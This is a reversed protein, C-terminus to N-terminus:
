QVIEDRIELPYAEGAEEWRRRVLDIVADLRRRALEERDGDIRYTLRLISFEKRLLDVLRDIGEFWRQKLNTSREEFAAGSIDLRVIRGSVVAFNATVSQDETLTIAQPNEGSLRYGGPLSDIEALLEVALGAQAGPIDACFLQYRGFRDTTVVIGGELSLRVGDIGMENGDDMGDRDADEFVRGVIDSCRVMEDTRIEIAASAEESVPDGARDLLRARNVYRGPATTALSELTISVLMIGDPGLSVPEFVLNAGREAPSADAANVTASGAVYRFGAPVVNVLTLEDLPVAAPNRAELEFVVREGRGLATRDARMGLAINAAIPLPDLPIHNHLPMRDGAQALFRVLYIAPGGVPPAHPHDSAQCWGGPVADFTCSSLDADEPLPPLNSSIGQAYGEPPVVSIGYLTQAAPCAVDAGPLLAFRYAGDAQTIQGQQRPDILCPDPLPTGSADTLLVTAGAIPERTISDFIMGSPNMPIDVDAQNQGPLLDLNGFGGVVEGGPSRLILRYGTAGPVQLLRYSGDAATATRAVTGAESALEVEFGAEGTDAGPSYDGSGDIDRYAVGSVSAPADVEVSAVATDCNWPNVVDCIRYELRYTGAPTGPPVSVLGDADIGLYAGPGQGIENVVVTRGNVTAEGLRDNAFLDLFGPSGSTGDAAGASRDDEAAIPPAVVAITASASACNGPDEVLCFRYALEYNGAPTGPAVHLAGNPDVSLPDDRGAAVVFLEGGGATKGDVTDNDLVNLVALAGAVGDIAEAADDTAVLVPREVVLEVTLTDNGPVTDGVTASEAVSTEFVLRSGGMGGAITAELRLTADGGPDLGDITWSGTEPDYHGNGAEAASSVLGQPLRTRLSIEGARDPGNNRVSVHFAITDGERFPGESSLVNVTELDASPITLEVTNRDGAERGDKQDLGTVVASNSVTVGAMGRDVVASIELSATAGADLTGIAWVGTEPDYAGGGSDSRYSLGDPLRDSVAVGTATEPGYNTVEVRFKVETGELPRPEESVLTKVTVLDARTGTVTAMASVPGVLRGAPDTATASAENTIAGADIDAERAVTRARCTDSEGPALSAIEALGGPCTVSEATADNIAIERLTVNGTNTVTIDFLVPDGPVAFATSVPRKEVTLSPDAPMLRVRATSPASLVPQGNRWGTAAVSNVIEAMVPTASTVLTAALAAAVLVRGPPGDRAANRRMWRMM